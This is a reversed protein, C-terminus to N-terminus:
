IKGLRSLATGGGGFGDLHSADELLRFDVIESNRGYGGWGAPDRLLSRFSFFGLRGPSALKDEGANGANKPEINM